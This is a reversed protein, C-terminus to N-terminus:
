ALGVEDLDEEDMGFFHGTEHLLTTRIEERLEDPDEAVRELNLRFLLIQTLHAQGGVSSSEPLATGAFLGLLRPDLGRAVDQQSPRDVILIPVNELLQRARTPLEALAREAVEAVEGETLREEAEQDTEADLRMTELWAERKAEEDGDMDAAVGLGHWADADEGDEDIVRQFWKRASAGDDIALFLNGLELAVVPSAETTGAPPLNSLTQMAAADRELDLELGAKLAVADLVEDEEDAKDYATTARKLAEELRDPDGALIEAARLDPEAWEPDLKGAEALLGLAAEHKGDAHACAALLMPIEPADPITRRLEAGLREAGEIDEAELLDWARGLEADLRADEDIM